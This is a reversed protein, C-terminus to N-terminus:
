GQKKSIGHTFLSSSEPLVAQLRNGCYIESTLTIESPDHWQIESFTCRMPTLFPPVTGRIIYPLRRCAVVICDENCLIPVGLQHLGADPTAIHKGSM